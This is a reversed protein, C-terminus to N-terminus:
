IEGQQDTNCSMTSFFFYETKPIDILNGKRGSDCTLHIISNATLLKNKLNSTNESTHTCTIYFM